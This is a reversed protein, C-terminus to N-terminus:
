HDNYERGNGRINEVLLPPLSTGHFPHKGRWEMIGNSRFALRYEISVGIPRGMASPKVIMTDPSPFEVFFSPPLMQFDDDVLGVYSAAGHRFHERAWKRAEEIKTRLEQIDNMREEGV